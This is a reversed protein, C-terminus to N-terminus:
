IIANCSLSISIYRRHLRLMIRKLLTNNKFIRRHIREEPDVLFLPGREADKTKNCGRKQFRHCNIAAKNPHQLTVKRRVRRARTLRRIFIAFKLFSMDISPFEEPFFITSSYRSKDVDNLSIVYRLSQSKQSHSDSREDM